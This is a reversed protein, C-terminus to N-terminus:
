KLITYPCEKKLCMTFGYMFNNTEVKEEQSITKYFTDNTINQIFNSYYKSKLSIISDCYITAKLSDSKLVAENFCDCYQKAVYEPSKKSSCFCFSLMITLVYFKM